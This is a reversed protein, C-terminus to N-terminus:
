IDKKKGRFFFLSIQLSATKLKALKDKYEVLMTAGARETKATKYVKRNLLYKSLFHHEGGECSPRTCVAQKSTQNHFFGLDKFLVLRGEGFFSYM